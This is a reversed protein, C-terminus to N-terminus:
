NAKTWWRVLGSIRFENTLTGSNTNNFKYFYIIKDGTQLRRALRSKIKLKFGSTQGDGLPNGQYYYQMIYEPHQLNYSSTVTMGQPVYMIYHELEELDNNVGSNFDGFVSLEVNKVTFQQSVSAENQPPNICLDVSNYNIGPSIGSKTESLNKINASWRGSKKKYFKRRTSKSM